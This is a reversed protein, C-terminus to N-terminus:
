SRYAISRGSRKVSALRPRRPCRSYASTSPARSTRASGTTTEMRVRFRSTSSDVYLRRSEAPDATIVRVSSIFKVKM